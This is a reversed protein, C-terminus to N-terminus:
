WMTLYVSGLFFLQLGLRSNILGEGENFYTIHIWYQNKLLALNM